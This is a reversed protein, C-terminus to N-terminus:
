DLLERNLIESLEEIKYPKHLVGSIGMKRIEIIEKSDSFGTSIIISCNANLKRLELFTEYGNMEPMIMDLIVLSIENSKYIELAELGNSAVRSSFGLSKVIDGMVIQNNKEDDVILVTKTYMNSKHSIVPDTKRRQPPKELSLPLYVRIKSGEKQKSHVEITGKYKQVMKYVASLGLGTGEGIKKTTFFPEFIKTLNEEAIGEGDDSVEFWCFWGPTIPITSNQSFESDLKKLGTEILITGGTPMAHSSNICLNLIANHIESNSGLVFPQDANLLTELKVKKDLTNKLINLVDQIIIHLDITVLKDNKKNSFILLRKPLEAARISAELILNVYKQSKEDLGRKPSKLLQAASMIGSLVNNFDHAIGGALQGITDMKERHQLQEQLKLEETIDRKVEVFNVVNNEEDYLPTVETFAKFLSGDKKTQLLIGKWYNEKTMIERVSNFVEETEDHSNIYDVRKGLAEEKSYGTITEYASNVFQIKWDKDSIVIMDTIHSIAALLLERERELEVKTTIDEKTAIFRSINGQDDYLPSILADEWYLDGNKKKDHFIGRWASGNRITSWLNRYFAEDMLGSSLISPNHGVLESKTYGTLECTKKNVYEIIGSSDTIVISIPSQNFASELTQMQSKMDKLRQAEKPIWKRILIFIIIISVLLNTLKPFFVIQPQALFDFVSIPIFGSFSTARVGFYTSEFLTRFSDISLIIFLTRLLQDNHKKSKLRRFYFVFIFLWFIILLWYILPTLYKFIDTIKEM